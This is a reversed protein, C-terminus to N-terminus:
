LGLVDKMEYVGVKEIIWEAAIVAGTAFGIRSYAEHKIEISDIESKYNIVHTGPVDPERISIIPVIEKNDTPENTWSTKRDDTSMIGEALTIATGSPADLKKTHHTETLELQYNDYPKMMEALKKNLAFFLNVGISFNSSVLMAGSQEYCLTKAEIFKDQWGTTGSIVPVGANICKSVNDFATAPTTFEIAVDIEKLNEENLDAQNDLDIKLAIEHDKDIAIKEITKGVRGYGIIAIRM